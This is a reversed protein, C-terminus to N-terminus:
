FSKIDCYVKQRVFFKKNKKLFFRTILITEIWIQRKNIFKLKDIQEVFSAFKNQVTIPADIYRIDRTEDKTITKTVAGRTRSKIDATGFDTSLMYFLYNMNVKNEDFRMMFANRSLSAPKDIKPMLYIKGASGIKSMILENGYIKSKSLLEFAKKDIYKINTYNKTELNTTRVMWAYNPEDHMKVNSDLKEYSGNANFDVLTTMYKGLKEIPYKATSYDDGFM